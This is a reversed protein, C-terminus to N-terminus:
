TICWVSGLLTWTRTPVLENVYRDQNNQHQQTGMKMIVNGRFRLLVYGHNTVTIYYLRRENDQVERSGIFFNSNDTTRSLSLTVDCTSTTPWQKGNHAILTTPPNHNNQQLFMKMFHQHSTIIQKLLYNRM